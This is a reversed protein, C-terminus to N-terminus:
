DELAAEIVRGKGNFFLRVWDGPTFGEWVKESLCKKKEVKLGFAQYDDSEFGSVPSLVFLNYYPRKEKRDTEFRGAAWGVFM